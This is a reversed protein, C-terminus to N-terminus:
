DKRIMLHSVAKYTAVYFRSFSKTYKGLGLEKNMEEVETETVTVPVKDTINKMIADNDGARGLANTGTLSGMNAKVSDM